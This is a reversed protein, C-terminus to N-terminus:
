VLVWAVIVVLAVLAAVNAVAMLGFASGDGMPDPDACTDARDVVGAPTTAPIHRAGEAAEDIAAVDKPTM